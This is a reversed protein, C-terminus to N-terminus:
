MKSLFSRVAPAEPADPALEVFRRLHAISLDKRDTQNYAMGLYYHAYAHEPAIKTAKELEPIAEGTNKMKVYALGLGFHAEAYNDDLAVAKKLPELAGGPDGAHLRALGLHTLLNKDEPSREVETALASAAESHKGQKYLELGPTQAWALIPVTLSIGIWAIRKMIEVEPRDGFPSMEFSKM